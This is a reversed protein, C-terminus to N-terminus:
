DSVALVYKYENSVSPNQESNTYKLNAQAIADLSSPLVEEPHVLSAIVM